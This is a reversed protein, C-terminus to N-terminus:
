GIGISIMLAAVFVAITVLLATRKYAGVVIVGERSYSTLLSMILGTGLVWRSFAIPVSDIIWDPKGNIRWLWQGSFIVVTALSLIFVGTIILHAATMKHPPLRIAEWTSRSYGVAVGAGVAVCVADMVEFLYQRSVLLATPIFAALALVIIVWVTINNVTQKM